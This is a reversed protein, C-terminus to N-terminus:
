LDSKRSSSTTIQAARQELLARLGSPMPRGGGLAALCVAAAAREYGNADVSPHAALLRELELADADSLGETARAVLLDDLRQRVESTV